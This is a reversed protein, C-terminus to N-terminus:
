RRRLLVRDSEGVAREALERRIESGRPVPSQRALRPPQLAQRRDLPRRRAPGQLRHQSGQPRARLRHQRPSFGGTAAKLQDFSYETFSPWSSEKRDGNELDSSELVSPKLHSHFWCLSFKSCRAGM